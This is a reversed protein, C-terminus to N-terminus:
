RAYEKQEKELKKNACITSHRIASGVVLGGGRKGTFFTKGCTPCKVHKRGDSDKFRIPYVRRWLNKDTM